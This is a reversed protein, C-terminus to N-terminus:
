IQGIPRMSADYKTVLERVHIMETESLLGEEQAEWLKTMIRSPDQDRADEFLRKAYSAHSEDRERKTARLLAIADDTTFPPPISAKKKPPAPRESPEIRKAEFSKTTRAEPGIRSSEEAEKQRQQPRTENKAAPAPLALGQRGPTMNEM